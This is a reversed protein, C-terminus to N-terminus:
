KKFLSASLSGDSSDSLGKKESSIRKEARAFSSSLKSFGKSVRSASDEAINLTSSIREGITDIRERARDVRSLSEFRAQEKAKTSLASRRKITESKQASIRERELEKQFFSKEVQKRSDRIFSEKGRRGLFSDVRDFFGM